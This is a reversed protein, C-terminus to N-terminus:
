RQFTAKTLARIQMGAMDAALPEIAVKKFPSEAGYLDIQADNYASGWSAMVVSDFIARQLLPLKERVMNWAEEPTEKRFDYLWAMGGPKLVRYIEELIKEPPGARRFGRFSVVRDFSGDPFPIDTPDGHVVKAQVGLGSAHIRAEAAQVLDVSWDMATIQLDRARRAIEVALRGSGSEFELLEGSTARSVVDQAVARYIGDMQQDRLTVSVRSGLFPFVRMGEIMEEGIAGRRRRDALVGWLLAFLTGFLLGRKFGKPLGAM